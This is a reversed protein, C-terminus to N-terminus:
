GHFVTVNYYLKHWSVTAGTWSIARRVFVQQRAHRQVESMRREHLRDSYSERVLDIQRDVSQEQFRHLNVQQALRQNAQTSMGWTSAVALLWHHASKEQGAARQVLFQQKLKRKVEAREAQM